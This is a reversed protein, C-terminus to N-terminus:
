AWSTSSRRPLPISQFFYTSLPNNLAHLARTEKGLDKSAYLRGSIGQAIGLMLALDTSGGGVQSLAITVSAGTMFGSVVASSLFNLVWGLRLLGVATYFCGAIFAIQTPHLLSRSRTLGPTCAPLNCQFTASAEGESICACSLLPRHRM